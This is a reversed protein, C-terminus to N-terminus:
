KTLKPKKSAPEPSDLTEKHAQQEAAAAPEAEVPEAEAHEAKAAAKQDSVAKISKSQQQAQSRNAEKEEDVLSLERMNFKGLEKYQETIGIACQNKIVQMLITKMPKELDVKHPPQPVLPAVIRLTDDRKLIDGSARKEFVIAFRIQSGDQPFHQPFLQKCVKTVSDLDAHCVTDIPMLRMLVEKNKDAETAAAQVVQSPTPQARRSNLTVWVLGNVNAREWHWLETAKGHPKRLASLEADLAEQMDPQKGKANSGDPAGAAAQDPEAVAAQAAAEVAADDLKREAPAAAGSAPPETLEEDPYQPKLQDYFQTLIRVADRGAQMEKGGMCTLLVGRKGM